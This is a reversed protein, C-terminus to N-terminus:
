QSPHVQCLASSSGSAYSSRLCTENKISLVEACDTDVTSGAADSAAGAMVGDFTEKEDNEVNIVFDPDTSQTTPKFVVDSAAVVCNEGADLGNGTVSAATAQEDHPPSSMDKNNLSEASALQKFGTENCRKQQVAGVHTESWDISSSSVDSTRGSQTGIFEYPDNVTVVEIDTDYRRTKKCVIFKKNVYKYRKQQQRESNSRLQQVKQSSVSEGGCARIGLRNSSEGIECINADRSNLHEASRGAVSFLVSLENLSLYCSNALDEEFACLLGQLKVILQSWLTM